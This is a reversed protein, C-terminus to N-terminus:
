QPIEQPPQAEPAQGQEAQAQAAAAGAKIVQEKEAASRILEQPMGTKQGAWTGLDETKFSMQVQDPGATNLTFEIAQQVAILDEADQSRALPSTFKISVEKGGIVIPDVLGRRKLIWHVRKLIPVLVETQLRGFASGIRKALERSPIEIAM